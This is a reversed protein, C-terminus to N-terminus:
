PFTSSNSKTYILSFGAKGEVLTPNTRELFHHSKKFEKYKNLVKGMAICNIPSFYSLLQENERSMKNVSVGLCIWKRM